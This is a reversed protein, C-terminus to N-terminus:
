LTDSKEMRMAKLKPFWTSLDGGIIRNHRPRMQVSYDTITDPILTYGDSKMELVIQLSNRNIISCTKVNPFLGQCVSLERLAVWHTTPHPGGIKGIHRIKRCTDTGILKILKRTRTIDMFQGFILFDKSPNVTIPISEAVRPYGELTTFCGRQKIDLPNEMFLTVETVARYTEYAKKAESCIQCFMPMVQRGYGRPDILDKPDSSQLNWM